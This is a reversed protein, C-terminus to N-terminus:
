STAIVLQSSMVQQFNQLTQRRFFPWILARAAIRGDLLHLIQARQWLIELTEPNTRLDGARDILSPGQNIASM